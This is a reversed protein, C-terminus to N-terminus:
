VTGFMKMTEMIAATPTEYPLRSIEVVTDKKQEKMAQRHRSTYKTQFNVM